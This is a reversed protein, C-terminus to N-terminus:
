EKIIKIFKNETKGYFAPVILNDEEEIEIQIGRLMLSKVYSEESLIYNKMADKNGIAKIYFPTGIQVGNIRLFLGNCFISSSSIVRHGNISIAEAGGNLLDNVVQIMDTNHILKSNRDEYFEDSDEFDRSADEMTIELGPGEMDVLGININNEEIQMKVEEIIKKKDKENVNYNSFKRNYAVKIENLNSIDNILQSRYVYAEQYDKSNLFISKEERSFSINLAVLIGIIISAIFVFIKAENYRM